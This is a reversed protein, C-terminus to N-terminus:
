GRTILPRDPAGCTPCRVSAEAEDVGVVKEGRFVRGCEPLSPVGRDDDGGAVIGGPDSRELRLVADDSIARIDLVSQVRCSATPVEVM